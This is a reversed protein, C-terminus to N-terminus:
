ASRRNHIPGSAGCAAVFEGWTGYSVPEQGPKLWPLFMGKCGDHRLMDAQERGTVFYLRQDAAAEPQRAELRSLRVELRTTM